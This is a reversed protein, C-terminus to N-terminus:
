RSFQEFEKASLQHTWGQQMCTEFVSFCIGKAADGKRLDYRIAMDVQLQKNNDFIDKMRTKTMKGHRGKVGMKKLAEGFNYFNAETMLPVGDSGKKSSFACFVRNLEEAPDADFKPLGEDDGEQASGNAAEMKWIDGNDWILKDDELRAHSETGRLNMTYGHEGDGSSTLTTTAGDNAFTANLGIIDISEGASNKWKGDLAAAQKRRRHHLLFIVPWMVNRLQVAQESHEDEDRNDQNQRSGFLMTVLSRLKCHQASFKSVVREEDQQLKDMTGALSTLGIAAGKLGVFRAKAKPHPKPESNAVLDYQVWGAHQDSQHSVVPVADQKTPLNGKAALKKRVQQGHYVAQIHTAAAVDEASSAQGIAVPVVDGSKQGAHAHAHAHTPTNSPRRQNAHTVQCKESGGAKTHPSRKAVPTATPTQLTGLSNSSPDTDVVFQSVVGDAVGHGAGAGHFTKAHAKAHVTTPQASASM